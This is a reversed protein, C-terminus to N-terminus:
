RSSKLNPTPFAQTYLCRWAVTPSFTPIPRRGALYLVDRPQLPGLLEGRTVATGSQEDQAKVREIGWSPWPVTGTHMGLFANRTSRPPQGGLGGVSGYTRFERM